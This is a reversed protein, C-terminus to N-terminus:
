NLIKKILYDIEFPKIIVSHIIRFKPLKNTGRKLSGTVVIVKANPDLKEIREIAYYGDFEPMALDLLMVDPKHKEYLEVADKGDYGMAIVNIGKLKLLIELARANDLDDDIIITRVMLCNQM